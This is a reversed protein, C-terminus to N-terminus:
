KIRTHTETFYKWAMEIVELTQKWAPMPHDSPKYNGEQEIKQLNNYYPWLAQYEGDKKRIFDGRRFYEGNLHFELHLMHGVSIQRHEIIIFAHDHMTCLKFRGNGLFQLEPSEIKDIQNIIESDTM